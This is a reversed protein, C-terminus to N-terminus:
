RWTALALFYHAHPTTPDLAIARKFERIAEPMEKADRYARGFMVHLSGSDGALRMMQQFVASARRRSGAEQSRSKSTSAAPLHGAFVPDGVDPDIRAAQDFAEAAKAYDGKKIRPKPASTGHAPM